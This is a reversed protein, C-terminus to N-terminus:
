RYSFSACPNNLDAWPCIRKKKPLNSWDAWPCIEL